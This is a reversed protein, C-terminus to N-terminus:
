RAATHSQAIDLIAAFMEIGNRIIEEPFDYDPNHLDPMTEGAGLGFMAGEYRKTFEGFDEGWRFPQNLSGIMHGTAEAAQRIIDYGIQSNLTGAFEERIEFAAELNNQAALDKACSKLSQWMQEVTAPAASRLTFHVEGRAPSIGSAQVGMQNYVPVILAYADSTDYGAQIDRAKLTLDSLAYSPSNGTEPQASHAEKGSMRVAVYKVESAFTGTKCLIQGAPFGPLNHLAFVLDPEIHAFNDHQCSLRAGTGTEEDPQFLLVARGKAPREALTQALGAMIAMHGDHGCKHAVGDYISRYPIDDNIEHIPLADLECRFLTTKGASRGEYVAAFGAGHLSVISDPTAHEELFRRMHMATEVEERSVEPHAHLWRRLCILQDIDFTM